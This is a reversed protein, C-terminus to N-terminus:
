AATPKHAKVNKKYDISITKTAGGVLDKATVTVMGNADIEFNLQIRQTRQPEPPLNDLTIEGIALCAERAADPEGQLVEIQADKQDESNLFFRQTRQCPIRSHKTVIAANRLCDKPASRDLVCCGVAHATVEHILLEPTPIVVGNVTATEGQRTLEAGCALAAGYVVAKDPDIDLKPVLRTHEAVRDQIFPIRSTGGVMILRDIQDYGLNASRVATDM